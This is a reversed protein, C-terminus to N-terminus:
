NGFLNSVKKNEFSTPPKHRVDYRHYKSSETKDSFCSTRGHQHARVNNRSPTGASTIGRSLLDSVLCVCVCLCKNNSIDQYPISRPQIRGSRLLHSVLCVCVCVCVNTTRASIKTHYPTIRPQIRGSRESQKKTKQRHTGGEKKNEVASHSLEHWPTHM